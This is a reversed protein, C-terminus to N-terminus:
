PASALQQAQEMLVVPSPPFALEEEGITETTEDRDSGSQCAWLLFVGVILCLLSLRMPFQTNKKMNM